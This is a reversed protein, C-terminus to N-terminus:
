MIKGHMFIWKSSQNKNFVTIEQTSACRNDNWLGTHHAPTCFRKEIVSSCHYYEIQKYNVWVFGLFYFYFLVKEISYSISCWKQEKWKALNRKKTMSDYPSRIFWHTLYICVECYVVGVSYCLSLWDYNQQQGCPCFNGLVLSFVFFLICFM